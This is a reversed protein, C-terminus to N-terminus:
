RGSVGLCLGTRRLSAVLEWWYPQTHHSLLAICRPGPHGRVEHPPLFVHKFVHPGPCIPGSSLLLRM